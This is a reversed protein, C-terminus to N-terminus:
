DSLNKGVWVVKAIIEINPNDADVLLHDQSNTSYIKFQRGPLRQLNKVFLDDDIRIIYIGERLNKIKKRDCLLIDGTHIAPIMSDGYAIIVALDAQNSHLERTIYEKRFVLHETIGETSNLLGHGTSASIDYLPIYCFEDSDTKQMSHMSSKGSILWDTTTEGLSAIKFLNAPSPVSLGKEYKFISNTSLNLKGALESQTLGLNVRLEKIRSALSM